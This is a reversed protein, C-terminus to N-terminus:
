AYKTLKFEKEKVLRQCNEHNQIMKIQILWDNGLGQLEKREM